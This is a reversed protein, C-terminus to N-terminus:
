EEISENDKGKIRNETANRYYVMADRMGQMKKWAIIYQGNEMLNIVSQANTAYRGFVSIMHQEYEEKSATELNSGQEANIKDSM